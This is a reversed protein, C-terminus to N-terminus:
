EGSTEQDNQSIVASEANEEVAATEDQKKKSSSFWNRCKQFVGQFFLRGNKQGNEVPNLLSQLRKELDQPDAIRDRDLIGRCAIRVDGTEESVLVVVADTEETAGIAARHRTGYERAAIVNMELQPLPLFVKAAVIRDRRIIIACDHLPSNKFFISRILLDNVEADLPVSKRIWDELGTLREIVILAGTKTKSMEFVAATINAITKDKSSQYKFFGFMGVQMLLRRIEPQFVVVLATGFLPLLGSIMSSLIPLELQTASIMTIFYICVIAMLLNMSRTGRFSCLILFLIFFVITFDVLSISKLFSPMM